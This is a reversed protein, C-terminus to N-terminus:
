SQKLYKEIAPFLGPAHTIYGSSALRKTETITSIQNDEHFVAIIETYMKPHLPHQFKVLTKQGITKHLQNYVTGAYKPINNKILVQEISTLIQIGELKKKIDHINKGYIIIDDCYEEDTSPRFFIKITALEDNWSKEEIHVIREKHWKSYLKGVNKYVKKYTYPYLSPFWKLIFQNFKNQKKPTKMKIDYRGLNPIELSAFFNRQLEHNQIPKKNLIQIIHM